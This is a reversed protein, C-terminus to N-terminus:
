APMQNRPFSLLKWVVQNRTLWSCTVYNTRQGRIMHFGLKLLLYEFIQQESTIESKHTLFGTTIWESIEYIIKNSSEQNISLHLTGLYILLDSVSGYQNFELSHNKPNFQSELIACAYARHWSKWQPVFSFSTPNLCGQSKYKPAQYFKLIKLM